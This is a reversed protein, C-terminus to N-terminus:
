GCRTSGCFTGPRADDHDAGAGGRAESLGLREAAWRSGLIAETTVDISCQDSRMFGNAIEGARHEEHLGFRLALALGFARELGVRCKQDSEIKKKPKTVAVTWRVLVTQLAQLSTQFEEFRKLAGDDEAIDGISGCRDLAHQRRVFDWAGGRKGRRIAAKFFPSSGAFLGHDDREGCEHAIGHGILRESDVTMSQGFAFSANQQLVVFKM